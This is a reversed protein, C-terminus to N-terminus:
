VCPWNHMKCKVDSIQSKLNSIQQSRWAERLVAMLDEAFRKGDCLPSAAMRERLSARLAALRPLDEALEVARWVYDAHDGAVLEQLGVSALHSLGHRSAFTEGPCTIVPVGMWLAECTTTSGTFPLADLVIDVERYTALYEVYPSSPLLTIRAPSVDAASFLDLIRRRVPEDGLGAFKLIMRSEPARCLIRAWLSIAEASIKALNNFSGFTVHGQRLAPLAGVDPAAAPPDYCVYSGPMRLVRECIHAQSGEPVVHRNALLYDIAQLGTTGEYGLWTIQVPAPRRAFLLLRVGGETHGALDFLIDIRDAAIQACLEANTLGIVDRWETAAAKIRGAMDDYVVRDNYCVTECQEPDLNELGRVLFYGVPHRGFDASVFGLRLRRSPSADRPQPTWVSRLSAAHRQQYVAHAEALEALTVGTRYQLAMLLNSHAETLDPKLEMARRYCAAAEDLRGQAHMALGLNNHTEALEPALALGQAYSAMAETLKGQDKLALGLNNYAEAYDPKLDVARRCCAAAEDYNRLDRFVIGLSNHAEAYDPKLELARRYCALAEALKGRDRFITGLNLHTAPANPMLEMARRCCAIAEDPNGQEKLAAGLNNHAQAYDPKIELARRYSAIAEDLTGQDQFIAGLNFHAEALTPKLEIARRYCAIAEEPKQQAALVVGLNNHAEAVDPRLELVRGYCAAADDWRGQDKLANGLNNLAEFYDPALALAQRYANIAEDQAGQDRLANGLNYHAQAYEPRLAIARRCSAVAETCRGLARLAEALNNHYAPDANQLGIARSIYEVAVDHRGVQHAIVGLLHLADAQNPELALIQRYGLEAAQLRGAQHHEVALALAESITAMVSMIARRDGPWLLPM